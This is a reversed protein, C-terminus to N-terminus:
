TFVIVKTLFHTPIWKYRNLLQRKAPDSFVIQGLQGRDIEGDDKLIDEGFAEVVKKWGGNGKRVM